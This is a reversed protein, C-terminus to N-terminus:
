YCAGPPPPCPPDCCQPMTVIFEQSLEADSMVPRKLFSYITLAHREASGYTIELESQLLALTSATDAIPPDAYILEAQVFHGVDDYELQAVLQGAFGSLRGTDRLKVTPMPIHRANREHEIFDIALYTGPEDLSLCNMRNRAHELRSTRLVSVSGAIAKTFLSWDDVVATLGSAYARQNKLNIPACQMGKSQPM